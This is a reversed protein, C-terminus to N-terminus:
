LYYARLVSSLSLVQVVLLGALVLGCAPARGRAPLHAILFGTALGFLGIAPLLYRGQLLPGRDAILSRYDTLHLGALLAVLALGLFSILAWSLPNRIRALLAAAGALIVGTCIALV